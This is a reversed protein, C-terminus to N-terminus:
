TTHSKMGVCTDIGMFNGVQGLVWAPGPQCSSNILCPRSDFGGGRCGRFMRSYRGRGGHRGFRALAPLGMADM